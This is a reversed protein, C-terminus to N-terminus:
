GQATTICACQELDGSTQGRSLLLPFHIHMVPTFLPMVLKCVSAYSLSLFGWRQSTLETSLTSATCTHPSLRLGWAQAFFGLM